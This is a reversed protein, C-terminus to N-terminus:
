DITEVREIYSTDNTIAEFPSLYSFCIIVPKSCTELCICAAGELCEPTLRISVSGDPLKAIGKDTSAISNRDLPSYIWAMTERDYITLSWASLLMIKPSLIVRYTENGDLVNGNTDLMRYQHRMRHDADFTAFFYRDARRDLDMRDLLEFDNRASKETPWDKRLGPSGSLRDAMRQQMLFWADAAGRRMAAQTRSDPKYPKGKEIGLSALMAMMTKDRDHIPEVQIIHNLDDFWREDYKPLTSFRQNTAEIFETNKPTLLYSMRIQKLLAWADQPRANDGLRATIAWVARFSPSVVIRADAPLEGTYGPPLLVIKRNHQCAPNDDDIELIELQWHDVFRGKLSAKDTVPPLELMVPGHCLDTFGFLRPAEPTAGLLEAWARLHSPFAIMTNPGGGLAMSGRVFGYVSVAPMSWLVAEFARQYLQQQELDPISPSTDDPPRGGIPEAISSARDKM